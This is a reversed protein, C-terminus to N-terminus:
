IKLEKDHSNLLYITSSELSHKVIFSHKRMANVDVATFNFSAILLLFLVIDRVIIEAKRKNKIIKINVQMKQKCIQQISFKKSHM